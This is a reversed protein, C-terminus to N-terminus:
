KGALVIVEKAITEAANPKGFFDINHELEKRRADDNLLALVERGLVERAEADRVLVAAGKNVLAMANKTQHDEAVNPSPILIASKKVLSLESITLAGARCVIVDAAQYALDMREVFPMVKVNHGFDKDKFEDWYLKGVQWIINYEANPNITAINAKLSENITRAGLSGGFLFITKKSTDLGFHELADTRNYEHDFVSSRVPNGTFVIKESPFFSSMNDYAVCIKQVSKSLLKNTVGAYCNQEQLLAPVGLQTAMKLTPGSAYGGVGVAVDPNFEKVISRATRLSKMLKFPFLLNKWTLRRQFGVVDLGKIDYGARPVREMEMKGNAGVFLFEADPRQEKIADAIAIAPFIHGGTGGGSIIVRM